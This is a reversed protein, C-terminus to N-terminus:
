ASVENLAAVVSRVVEGRAKVRRFIDDSLSSGDNREVWGQWGTWHDRWYGDRIEITKRSATRITITFSIGNPYYPQECVEANIGYKAFTGVLREWRARASQSNEIM